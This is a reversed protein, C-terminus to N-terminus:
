EPLLAGVLLARKRGNLSREAVDCGCSFKKYHPSKRLRNLLQRKMRESYPKNRPWVQGCHDCVEPRQEFKQPYPRKTEPDIYIIRKLDGCHVCLSEEAEPPPQELDSGEDHFEDHHTDAHTDHTDRERRRHRPQEHHDRKTGMRTGDTATSSLNTFEDVQRRVREEEPIRKKGGEKKEKKEGKDKRSFISSM